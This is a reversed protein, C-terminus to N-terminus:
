ADNVARVVMASNKGGFGFSNKLVTRIRAPRAANPVYDLDCEPDPTHYNITAPIVQHQMALLAAILEVCGAGGLLHGFMSKVASIPVRRAHEGLVTKLVLTETKDNLPTSTGHANVYDIEEPAIGADQIALAVARSADRGDPRPNTIHYADCTAGYGLVEAYIPAGRLRAADLTELVVMGGGEGMVFGDRDKDFPRSASAPDDNRRSMGRVMSFASVSSASIPAQSGGALAADLEGYSIARFAHGISDLSASCASAYIFSPGRLDLVTSVWGGAAEPFQGMGSELTAGVWEGSEDRAHQALIFTYDYHGLNTGYFVGTRDRDTQALDLSADVVAMKAAAVAFQATRDMRKVVKPPAYLLPDFGDVEAAIRTAFPSADFRTITRVASRGSALGEWFADKGIGIPSVVGVGSIVV